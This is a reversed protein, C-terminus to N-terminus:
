ARLFFERIAEIVQSQQDETMASFLPLALSTACLSEAQPLAPERLSAFCTQRHMPVPYYVRTEINRARLWAHLADRRDCRVVFAHWAHLAPPPPEVPLVLPLGALEEVYRRAARTRRGQWAPLRSTKALLVAAQLADLRSNRGLESHVYPETAGHARLRRVGAAVDPRSTVVAGGDGWAGLGKTPFFSFCGVDGASGAPRGDGDRAGIAQAADEVIAVDGEAALARLAGLPACLGFLDVPLLARVRMGARAARQLAEGFTRETGNMTVPDVDCFVPRAGTAVIAEATAIFSVAPTVVADGPGVHLARLGLELADSGSAVGVAHGVGCARSLWREFAEVHPGLIFRAEAAVQAIAALVESAVEKEQGALDVFPVRTVV